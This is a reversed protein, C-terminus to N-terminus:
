PTRRSLLMSSRPSPLPVPDPKAPEFRDDPRRADLCPGELPDPVELLVVFLGAVTVGM